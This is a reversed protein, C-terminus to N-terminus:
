RTTRAPASADLLSWLDHREFSDIRVDAEDLLPHSERTAIAVCRLGALKAARVGTQSDEIAVVRDAALGLRALAALYLDPAPKARPADGDACEVFSWGDAIGCQRAYRTIWPRDSNSVIARPLGRGDVENLLGPIGPRAQVTALLDPMRQRVLSEAAAHDVPRGCLEELHRWPSVNAAGVMRLWAADSMRAGHRRFCEDYAQFILPECDWLTGDFDFLVAEVPRM